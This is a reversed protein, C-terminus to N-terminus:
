IAFFNSTEARFVQGDLEGHSITTYPEGEAHCGPMRASNSLGNQRLELHATEAIALQSFPGVTFVPWPM